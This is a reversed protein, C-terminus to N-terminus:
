PDEPYQRVRLDEPWDSMDGGGKKHRLKLRNEACPAGWKGGNALVRTDEWAFAGLQKVFCAAGAADCQEVISRIWEIRCPRAGPGSEGGVIVWDIADYDADGPKAEIVGRALYLSADIPGLLPELSLGRHAAPCAILDPARRELEEQNEASAMLTVNPLPWPEHKTTIRPPYKHEPDLVENAIAVCSFRASRRRSLLGTGREAVWDFFERVRRARKTLVQHTHQPTAAMVGFCAAIWEFPVWDGFMDTMDCWFYTTPKRRRLVEELRKTDLFPHAQGRQEKFPPMGFRSQARSAYCNLCGPSLKECYHGVHTVGDLTLRARIPNVSFETWEIPTKGM